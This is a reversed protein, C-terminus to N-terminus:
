LKKQIKKFNLFTRFFNDNNRSNLKKQMRGTRLVKKKVQIDDNHAQELTEIVKEMSNYYHEVTDKRLNSIKIVIVQNYKKNSFVNVKHMNVMFSIYQGNAYTTM